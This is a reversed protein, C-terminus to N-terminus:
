KNCKVASRKRWLVQCDHDFLCERAGGPAVGVLQGAELLGAIQVKSFSNVRMNAKFSELGPLFTLCSDVVSYVSRYYLSDYLSDYM